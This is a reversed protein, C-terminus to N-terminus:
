NIIQSLNNFISEAIDPRNMSYIHINNVGNALLDIIQETAYAIGAQRMADPNDAFREVIARFRRPLQTGSLSCIRKIQKANIVPMIGATVPVDVGARLLKYMFNYLIDNDFFM